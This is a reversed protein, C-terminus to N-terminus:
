QKLTESTVPQIGMRAAHEAEDVLTTTFRRNKPLAETLSKQTVLQKLHYTKEINSNRRSIRKTEKQALETSPSKDILSIDSARRIFSTSVDLFSNDPQGHFSKSIRNIKPPEIYCEKVLLAGHTTKSSESKIKNKDDSNKLELFKEISDCWKDSGLQKFYTPDEEYPKPIFGIASDEKHGEQVNRKEQPLYLPESSITATIPSSQKVGEQQQVTEDDDGLALSSEIDETVTVDCDATSGATADNTNFEIESGGSVPTVEGSEDTFLILEILISYKSKIKDNINLSVNSPASKCLLDSAM